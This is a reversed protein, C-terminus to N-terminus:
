EKGDGPRPTDSNAVPKAKKSRRAPPRRGEATSTKEHATAERAMLWGRVHSTISRLRDPSIHQVYVAGVGQPVHGMILDIAPRDPLEDAVTRFTRRLTYFGLDAVECAECRDSFWEGLTDRNLKVVPTNFRTFFLLGKTNPKLAKLATLTEPWLSVMRLAGTKGRPYAVLDGDIRDMTFFAIDTNGFGANIGLYIAAKLMENAGDLLKRIECASYMRRPRTAVHQRKQRMTPQVFAAGYHIREVWNQSIAFNLATKLCVVFKERRYISQEAVTKAFATFDDPTLAEVAKTEGVLTVFRTLVEIYDRLTGPAVTTRKWDIFADCAYKVTVADRTAVPAALDAFKLRFVEDALAATPAKTLSCVYKTGSGPIHKYWGDPRLTLGFRSNGRSM